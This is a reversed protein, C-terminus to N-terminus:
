DELYELNKFKDSYEHFIAQLDIKLKEHEETFAPKVTQM